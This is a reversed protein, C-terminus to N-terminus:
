ILKRFNVDHILDDKLSAFKLVCVERCIQQLLNYKENLKRELEAKRAKLLQYRNSASTGTSQKDIKENIHHQNSQFQVETETSM